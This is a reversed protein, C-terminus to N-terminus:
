LGLIKRVAPQSMDLIQAIRYITIGEARATKVAEDRRRATLDARHRDISLQTQARKLQTEIDTPVTLLEQHRQALEVVQGPTDPLGLSLLVLWLDYPMTPHVGRAGLAGEILTLDQDICRWRSWEEATVPEGEALRREIDDLFSPRRPGYAERLLSAASPGTSDPTRGDRALFYAEM